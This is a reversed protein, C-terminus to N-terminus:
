RCNMFVQKGDMEVRVVEKGTSVMAEALIEPYGNRKALARFKARIPSQFKEGMMEPGSGTYAIPACDGITTAPKMVLDGCSLAILAGASIAKKEVFAITQEPPFKLLTDLIELASDVMGGFTNIEIVELADPHVSTEKYAREIFAAMGSDVTDTIPIVYVTKIPSAPFAASSCLGMLIILGGWMAFARVLMSKKLIHTMRCGQLFRKIENNQTNYLFISSQLLNEKVIKLKKIM